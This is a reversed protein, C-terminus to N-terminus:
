FPFTSDVNRSPEELVVRGQGGGETRAELGTLTAAARLAVDLSDSLPFPGRPGFFEELFPHTESIGLAERFAAKLAAKDYGEPRKRAGTALQLSATYPRFTWGYAVDRTDVALLPKNRQALRALVDKVRAHSAAVDGGHAERAVLAARAALWTGLTYGQSASEMSMEELTRGQAPASATVGLLRLADFTGNWKELRSALTVKDAFRTALELRALGETFGEFFYLQRNREESFSAVSFTDHEKPAIRKVNWAHILEHAVLGTFDRAENQPACDVGFALATSFAHELGQHRCGTQLAVHVLFNGGFNGWRTQMDSFFQDIREKGGLGAYLAEAKAKGRASTVAFAFTVKEGTKKYLPARGYSVPTDFFTLGNAFEVCGVGCAKVGVGAALVHPLPVGKEDVLYLRHPLALSAPRLAAFAPASLHGGDAGHVGMVAPWRSRLSSAFPVRFGFVDGVAKTGRKAEVFTETEDLTWPWHYGFVTAPEGFTLEGANTAVVHVNKRAKSAGVNADLFPSVFWTLGTDLAKLSKFPEPLEVAGPSPPPEEKSDTSGPGCGLVFSVCAFVTFGLSGAQHRSM